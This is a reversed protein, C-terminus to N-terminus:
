LATASVAGANSVTLVWRNGNPSRIILREGPGLEVDQLKKRNMGDARDLIDMLGRLFKEYLGPPPDPTIM